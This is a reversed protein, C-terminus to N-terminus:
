KECCKMGVVCRGDVRRALRTALRRDDEAIVEGSLSEKLATLMASLIPSAQPHIAYMVWTGQRSDEVAGAHRMISLHHSVLYQPLDLADVIECVCLPAESKALVRLIRLRTEDALAKLLEVTDKM